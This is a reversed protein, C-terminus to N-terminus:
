KVQLKDRNNQKLYSHCTETLHISILLNVSKKVEQQWTMRTKKCWVDHCFESLDGKSPANFVPATYFIPSLIV